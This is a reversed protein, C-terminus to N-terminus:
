TIGARAVAVRPCPQTQGHQLQRDGVWIAGVLREPERGLRRTLLLVSSITRTRRVGGANGGGGYVESIVVTGAAFANGAMAAVAILM